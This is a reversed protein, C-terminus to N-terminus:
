PTFIGDAKPDDFLELDLEDPKSDGFSEPEVWLEEKKKHRVELIQEITMTSPYFANHWTVKKGGGPQTPKLAIQGKYSTAYFRREVPFMTVNNLFFHAPDQYQKQTEVNRFKTQDDSLIHSAPVGDNGFVEITAEKTYDFPFSPLRSNKSPMQTEPNITSQNYWHRIDSVENLPINDGDFMYVQLQHERVSDLVDIGAKEFVHLCALLFIKFQVPADIMDEIIRFPIYKKDGNQARTFTKCTESPSSVGITVTPKDPNYQSQDSGNEYLNYSWKPVVRGGFYSTPFAEKGDNNSPLTLASLKPDINKAIELCSKHYFLQDSVEDYPGKLKDVVVQAEEVAKDYTTVGPSFNRIVDRKEGTTLPKLAAKELEEKARKKQEEDGKPTNMFTAYALAFQALFLRKRADMYPNARVWYARSSDDVNQQFDSKM